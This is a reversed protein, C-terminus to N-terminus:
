EKPRRQKSLEEKLKDNEGRLKDNEKQLDSNAQQLKDNAQQLKEIAKRYLDAKDCCNKETPAQAPATAFYQVGSVPAACLALALWPVVVPLLLKSRM